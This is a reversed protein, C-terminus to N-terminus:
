EQYSPAAGPLTGYQKFIDDIIEQEVQERTKHDGHEFSEVPSPAPNSPQVPLKEGPPIVLPDVADPLNPTKM